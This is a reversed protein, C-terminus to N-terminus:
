KIWKGDWRSYPCIYCHIKNNTKRRALTFGNNKHDNIAKGLISMEQGHRMWVSGMGYSLYKNVMYEFEMTHWGCYYTIAIRNEQARKPLCKKCQVAGFQTETRTVMRLGITLCLNSISTQFCVQSTKATMLWLLPNVPKRPCFPMVISSKM